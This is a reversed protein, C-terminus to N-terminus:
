RIVGLRAGGDEIGIKIVARQAGAQGNDRWARIHVGRAFMKGSSKKGRQGACFPAGAIENKIPPMM